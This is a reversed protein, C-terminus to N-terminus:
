TKKTTFKLNVGNTVVDLTGTADFSTDPALAVTTPKTKAGDKDAMKKVEDALLEVPTSKGEASDALISYLGGKERLKSVYRQMKEDDSGGAGFADAKMRRAEVLANQLADGGKASEAIRDLSARDFAKRSKDGGLGFLEGLSSAASRKVDERYTKVREKYSDSWGKSQDKGAALGEGTKQVLGELKSQLAQVEQKKGADATYDGRLLKEVDGGTLEDALQKLRGSTSSMETMLGLGEEGFAKLAEEDLVISEGFKGARTLSDRHRVQLLKLVDDANKRGLGSTVVGAKRLEEQMQPINREINRVARQRAALQLQRSESRSIADADMGYFEELRKLEAKAAEDGGAAQKKLDGIRLRDDAASRSDLAAMDDKLKGFVGAMQDTVKDRGQFGLAEALVDKVNTNPGADRLADVARQVFDARGLRSLATQAQAEVAAEQDAYAAERLTQRNHAVLVNTGGGYGATGPNMRVTQDFNAYGMRVERELQSRLEPTVNVGRKQLSAVAADVLPSYDRNAVKQLEDKNLGFAADSVDVAAARLAEQSVGKISRFAVAMQQGLLPAIDTRAQGRRAIGTIQENEAIVAQNSTTQLLARDALALDVGSGSLLKRLEPATMSTNRTVGASDVFTDQGARIARYLRSADSNADAGTPIVGLEDGLRLVAAMRNSAQSGAASATLQAGVMTLQDKGMLGFGTVGGMNRGHADAFAMGGVAARTAFSRDLGMLDTRGTMAGSLQFLAELSAGASRAVNSAKRVMQEVREPSMNSLGGQTLAEIANLLQALPANPQGMEGFLDQMASVAGAMSKLRDRVRTADMKQLRDAYDPMAAMGREDLGTERGLRAVLADRGGGGMLGRRQLEDFLQGTRGATLGRMEGVNATPGYLDDYVNATLRDVSAQSMMRQGTVPDLGYRSGSSFGMAMLRASGRRGHMRDFLDPAMMALFPAAASADDAFAEAARAERFGFPTGSLMAAGRIMEYYAGRDIQSGRNMAAFQSQFQHKARIQDYLNATPMFQAPVFEPGLLKGAFPSVMMNLMMAQQGGMGLLSALNFDPVFTPPRGAYMTGPGGFSSSFPEM